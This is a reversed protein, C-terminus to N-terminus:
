GDSGQVMAAQPECGDAGDFNHQNTFAGKATIKFITGCGGHYIPCTNPGGVYTTGYFDGDTGQVLGGFPEDGDTDVFAHLTTLTGGATIKFVTGYHLITGSSDSGGYGTTGYFDGAADQVLPAYPSSGDIEDFTRLTTIVGMPTMKYVTGRHASGNHVGGDLTTGYFNGDAALIVVSWPTAGHTLDFSYDLTLAGSTTMGFFGGYGHAGDASTTGYLNGDPGQALTMNRPVVGEAATFSVLTTFTQAPALIASALILTISLFRIM